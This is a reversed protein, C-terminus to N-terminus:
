IKNEINKHSYKREFRQTITKGDYELGPYLLSENIGIMDLENLINVKSDKPIRYRIGKQHHKIATHTIDQIECKIRKNEHDYLNKSIIFAGQQRQIRSSINKPKGIIIIDPNKTIREILNRQEMIRETRVKDNINSLYDDSNMFDEISIQNKFLYYDTIYRATNTTLIYENRVSFLFLEGDTDTKNCAFALAIAPNFTVDVLRTKLGYHQMKALQSFSDMGSPFEDPRLSIFEDFLDREYKLLDVPKSRNVSSRIDLGYEDHGRFFMCTDNDNCKESLKFVLKFFDFASKIDVIKLKSEIKREM